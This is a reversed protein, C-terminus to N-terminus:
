LNGYNAPNIQYRQYIIATVPPPLYQDTKIQEWTVGSALLIGDRILRRKLTKHSIPVSGGGLIIRLEKKTLMIPLIAINLSLQM